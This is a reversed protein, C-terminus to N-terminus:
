AKIETKRTFNKFLKKVEELESIIFQNLKDKSGLISTVEKIEKTLDEVKQKIKVSDSKTLQRLQMSLIYNAQEEDIKFQKQLKKNADEASDSKRIIEIAKDVDLVVCLLGQQKHLEKELNGLKNNLKLETTETKFEVFGKVLELVPTNPSPKGKILVTNNVNFKTQLPTLSFLEEVVEKVKAGKKLTIVCQVGNDLDSLDKVDIVEPLKNKDQQKNVSEIVQTVSVQYPLEYFTLQVKGRPLPEEKYKAQLVLSGTGTEYYDQIGEKGVILAGTPFDPGKLTKFLDKPKKIKGEIFSICTDIAELPNHSPLNSSYGVAIGSSGLILSTPFNIPLQIPEQLDGMETFKMKAANNNLEKVLEWSYDNLGIEYYRSAPATDGTFDGLTGQISFMPVRSNFHQGMTEIASEVGAPGHPHYKGIVDGSIRAGKLPKSKPTLGLKYMAFLIRRQVPKLGDGYAEILARNQLVYHAYVLGDENLADEM